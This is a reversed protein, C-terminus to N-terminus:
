QCDISDAEKVSRYVILAERVMHASWNSGLFKKIIGEGVGKDGDRCKTFGGDPNFKDPTFLTRLSEQLRELSECKGLEGDLFEKAAFM